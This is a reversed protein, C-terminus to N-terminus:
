ETQYLALRLMARRQSASANHLTSFPQQRYFWPQHDVNMTFPSVSPLIDLRM